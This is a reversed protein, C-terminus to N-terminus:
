YKFLDRILCMIAILCFLLLLPDNFNVLPSKFRFMMFACVSQAEPDAPEGKVKLFSGYTSSAMLKMFDRKREREADRKGESLRVASSVDRRSGTVKAQKVKVRGALTLSM